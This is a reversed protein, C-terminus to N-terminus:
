RPTAQYRAVVQADLRCGTSRLASTSRLAPNGRLASLTGSVWVTDMSRWGAVPRAPPVRVIQKAPPPPTHICAGFHPVRLFGILGAAVEDLVVLGGPRKVRAGDLTPETPANDRRERMQRLLAQTKPDGDVLANSNIGQDRLSKMPNRGKPVRDDWALETFGGPGPKALPQARAPASARWATLLGAGAHQLLRRHQQPPDHPHGPPRKFPPLVLPM